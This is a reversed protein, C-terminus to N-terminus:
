FTHSYAVIGGDVLIETGTIYGSDDSALFLAVKAIDDAVGLRRMPISAIAKQRAEEGMVAMSMPTIIVGPKICNVRVNQAAHEVAAARSMAVIGGKSSGYIACGLQIADIIFSAVNIISGGGAKVIEPIGYKMGAWIGKLNISIIKDFNEETSEVIPEYPAIAANNYLVNLKGYSDVARKIMKKIDDVKSVDVQVFTAEAGIEEILRVTENGGEEGDAVRDAVIVKAGEKAFLIAGARGMGRGSGTIIAVKNDLRGM